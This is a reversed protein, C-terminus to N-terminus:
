KKKRSCIMAAVILAAMGLVVTALVGDIFGHIYM